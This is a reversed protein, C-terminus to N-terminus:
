FGVRLGKENRLNRKDVVVFGGDEWAQKSAERLRDEDVELEEAANRTSRGSNNNFLIYYDCQTRIFKLGRAFLNQTIFILTCNKKRARM